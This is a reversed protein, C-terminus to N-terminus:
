NIDEIKGQTGAYKGKLAYVEKGKEFKIRKIIKKTKLNLEVSDGTEVIEESLINLGSSLNLQTKKGNVIKKCLVKYVKKEADKDLIEEFVMKKTKSLIARYNKNIKPLTVVDLIEVPFNTDIILKGNVLVQKENILMQLEKKTNVLKLLDRMVVLLPASDTENHRAVPVYKSGKKPIGWIKGANNRNKHM